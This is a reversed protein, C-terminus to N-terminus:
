ILCIYVHVVVNISFILNIRKGLLRKNSVTAEECNVALYLVCLVLDIAFLNAAEVIIKM